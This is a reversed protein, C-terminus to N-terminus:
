RRLFDYGKFFYLYITRGLLYLVLGAIMWLAVYFDKSISRPPPLDGLKSFVFVPDFADPKTTFSLKDQYVTVEDIQENPIFSELPVKFVFGNSYSLTVESIDMQLPFSAPDFRLSRLKSFVPICFTVTTPAGDSEVTKHQHDDERVGRGIDYYIAFDVTKQTTITFSVDVSTKPLYTYRGFIYCVALLFLLGLHFTLSRIPWFRKM